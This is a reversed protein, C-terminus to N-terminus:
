KREEEHDGLSRKSLQYVFASDAYTTKQHKSALLAFDSKLQPHNLISNKAAKFAPEGKLRLDDTIM